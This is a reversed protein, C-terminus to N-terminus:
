CVANQEQMLICLLEAGLFSRNRRPSNMVVRVCVREVQCRKFILSEGGSVAAVPPAHIRAGGRLSIGDDKHISDHHGKCQIPLVTAM